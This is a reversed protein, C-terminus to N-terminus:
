VYMTYFIKYVLAKCKVTWYCKIAHLIIYMNDSDCTCPQPKEETIEQYWGHIAIKSRGDHMM